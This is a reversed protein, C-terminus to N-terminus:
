RNDMKVVVISDSSVVTGPGPEVSVVTWNTYLIPVKDKPNVSGYQVNTFGLKTLQDLVIAGNKGVIDPITVDKVPAAAPTTVVPTKVAPPAVAAVSTTTAAAVLPAPKTDKSKDGFASGIGGLVLVAGAGAAWYQWKPRKPKVPPQLPQQYPQQPPQFPPQQYPQQPPQFPPQQNTMEYDGM